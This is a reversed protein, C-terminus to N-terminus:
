TKQRPPKNKGKKTLVLLSLAGDDYQQVRTSVRANARCFKMQVKIILKKNEKQSCVAQPDHVAFQGANSAITELFFM